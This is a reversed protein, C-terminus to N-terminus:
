QEYRRLEDLAITYRVVTLFDKGPVNHRNKSQVVYIDVCDKAERISAIAFQEFIGPPPEVFNQQGYCREWKVGNKSICLQVRVANDEGTMAPYPPGDDHKVQFVNLFGWYTKRKTDYVVSMCYFQQAPHDKDNPTLVVKIDSWKGFDSSTMLGIKRIDKHQHHPPRPRIYCVYDEQEERHLLTFDEGSKIVPADTRSFGVGDTSRLIHHHYWGEEPHWSHDLSFFEGGHKVISQPGGTV